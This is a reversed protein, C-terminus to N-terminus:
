CVRFMAMLKTIQKKLGKAKFIKMEKINFIQSLAVSLFTGREM